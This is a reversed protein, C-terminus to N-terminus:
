CNDYGCERVGCKDLIKVDAGLEVLIKVAAHNGKKAMAHLLTNQQFLSVLNAGRVFGIHIAPQKLVVENSSLARLHLRFLEIQPFVNSGAAGRM